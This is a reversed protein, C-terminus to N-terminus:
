PPLTRSKRIAGGEGVAGRTEKVLFWGALLVCGVAGALLARYLMIQTLPGVYWFVLDSWRGETALSTFDVLSRYVRSRQLDWLGRHARRFGGALVAFQVTVAALCLTVTTARLAKWRKRSVEEIWFGFPVMMLVVTTFQYRPGWASAINHWWRNKAFFLFNVLVMALLASGEARRRRLLAPIGALAFVLFPAFFLLGRGPSVLLAPVTERLSADFRYARGHQGSYGTDFVGGFRTHNYWGFAACAVAMVLTFATAPMLLRGRQEAARWAAYLAFLGLVPLFIVTTMRVHLAAGLFIAALAGDSVRFSRCARFFFLIGGVLLLSALPMDYSLTAYIVVMSGFIALLPAVLSAAIGVGLDFLLLFLVVGLLAVVPVNAQAAVFLRNRGTRACPSIM